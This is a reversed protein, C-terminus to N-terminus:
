HTKGSAHGKTKNLIHNLQQIISAYAKTSSEIIMCDPVKYGAEIEFYEDVANMYLLFLIKQVELFTEASVKIGQDSFVSAVMGVNDFWLKPVIETLTEKIIRSESDSYSAIENHTMNVKLQVSQPKVGSNGDIRWRKTQTLDLNRRRWEIASDISDCPMGRAKLRHTMQRSIGLSQALDSIKM